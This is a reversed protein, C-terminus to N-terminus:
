ILLNNPKRMKDRLIAFLLDIRHNSRERYERVQENAEQGVLVKLARLARAVERKLQLLYTTYDIKDTETQGGNGGVEDSVARQARARKDTKHIAALMLRTYECILWVGSDDRM